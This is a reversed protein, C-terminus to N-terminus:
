WSRPDDAAGPADVAGSYPVSDDEKPRRAGNGPEGGLIGTLAPAFGYIHASSNHCGSRRQPRNQSPRWCPLAQGNAVAQPPLAQCHQRRLGNAVIREVALVSQVIKM